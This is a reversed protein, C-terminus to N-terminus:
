GRLQTPDTYELLIKVGYPNSATITRITQVTQLFIGLPSETSRFPVAVENPIWGNGCSCARPIVIREDPCFTLRRKCKVCELSISAIDELGVVIKREFTM